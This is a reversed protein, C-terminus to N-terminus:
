REGTRSEYLAEIEEESMADIADPVASTAPARRDTDISPTDRDALVERALYGTIAEVTPHDFVLTAPLAGTLGLQGSLRNRLEVAMLSDLGMDSLPQRPDVSDAGPAGIVHAVHNGVFALL